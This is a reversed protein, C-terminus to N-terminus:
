EGENRGQSEGGPPMDEEMLLPLLQKGTEEMEIYEIIATM